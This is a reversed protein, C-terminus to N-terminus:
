ESWSRHPKAGERQLAELQEKARPWLREVISQSLEGLEVAANGREKGYYQLAAARLVSRRLAWPPHTDALAFLEKDTPERGTTVVALSREVYEMATMFLDAGFYSLAVDFGNLKMTDVAIQMGVLDAKIEDQWSHFLEDGHSGAFNRALTRSRDLHKLVVHGYEHGLVFLGMSNRLTNALPEQLPTIFYVPAQSPRDHLINAVMLEAFRQSASPDSALYEEVDDKSVTYAHKGAEQTAPVALAVAKAALHTFIFVNSDFAIVVSGSGPVKFSRANVGRSPVTGLVPPKSPKNPSHVLVRWIQRDLESILNYGLGDQYRSRSELPPSYVFSQLLEARLKTDVPQGTFKAYDELVTDVLVKEDIRRPTMGLRHHEALQMSELFAIARDTAGPSEDVALALCGAGVGVTVVVVLLRLLARVTCLTTRTM